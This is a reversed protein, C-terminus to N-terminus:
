AFYENIPGYVHFFGTLLVKNVDDATAAVGDAVLKEGIERSRQGYRRALEAGPTGMEMMQRFIQELAAPRDPHGLMVKWPVMKEPPAGLYGDCKPAIQELPVYTKGAPDFVGVPRGKQYQLIGDKQSGDAYQGGRVGMELLRDLLPSHLNEDAIRENMVRLICQCVDLGVYDILQFIGMPRILFEQSVKNIMYVAETFPIDSGLRDVEAVGHLIDRMFHGNGIFGAIDNAPVITKRLKGAYMQAFEVLEGRTGASTILEVLKQVAPPNYFHFGLIRGGLGLQEDIEAIPISSTNTFVWFDNDSHAKIQGLLKVKLDVSEPAAEFILRSRYAAELRTTPRVVALVDEIYQDIIEYNEVLDERHAYVQRLWVTKKEAARRAQSRLYSQLGSLAEESVDIANLVFTRGRNEPDLGLDALELATLLVIGSGMKGAAGLVAVNELREAYNM